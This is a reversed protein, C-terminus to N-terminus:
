VILHASHLSLFPSSPSASCTELPLVSLFRLPSSFTGLPSYVKWPPLSPLLNRHPLPFYSARLPYNLPSFLNWFFLPFLPLNRTPSPLVHWFSTSLFSSLNRFGLFMFLLCYVSLLSHTHPLPLSSCCLYRPWLFHKTIRLSIFRNHDFYLAVIEELTYWSLSFFGYYKYPIMNRLLFISFTVCVCSLYLICDPSFLLSKFLLQPREFNHVTKASVLCEFCVIVM